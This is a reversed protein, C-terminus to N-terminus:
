LWTPPNVRWNVCPGIKEALTMRALLDDVRDSIPADIQKYTAVDVEDGLSVDPSTCTSLAFLVILLVIWSLSQHNTKNMM